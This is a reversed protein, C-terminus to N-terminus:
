KGLISNTLKETEEVYFDYNINNRDIKSDNCVTTNWKVQIGIRREKTPNKKLPPMIKVLSQGKKSVYYRTINQIQLDGWMLRSTKPIKATLFFDFNDEHNEIFGRIDVGRILCAEAARSVVKMSHNQSLKRDYEYDGIRKVEGLFYMAIYSNVDKVWMDSYIQQELMLCTYKQWNKKITELMPMLKHPLTVTLGDTNIQIMDLDPIRLLWEALMCILLQGNVTVSMTFASDYFPSYQSNSNGYIGVLALKLMKNEPTGKDFSARETRLGAYIDCFKKSLHAPFLGNAIVISPYCSGIDLDVIAMTSCSKIHRSKVSGHIGGTGFHYVFGNIECSVKTFEGKTSTITTKKMLDLIGVFESRRFGIYPFIIDKFSISGRITCKSKRPNSSYCVNPGIQKELESVLYDTGLKIDDHNTYDQGHKKSLNDRFQIMEVSAKHFIKTEETDSICYDIIKPMQDHALTTGFPIPSTVVNKSKMNIAVIKLSTLEKGKDMRHIKCMDLQPILWEWKPINNFFREDWPVNLIEENRKFMSHYIEGSTMAEINTMLLLHHVMLYDYSVNNFGVMRHKRHKVWYLFEMLRLIDNHRSSIEFIYVDDTNEFIAVLCWFNPFCETDYIIDM